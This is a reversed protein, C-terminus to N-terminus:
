QLNVTLKIATLERLQRPLAAADQRSISENGFVLTRREGLNPQRPRNIREHSEGM